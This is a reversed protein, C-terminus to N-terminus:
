AFLALIALAIVGGAIARLWARRRQRARFKIRLLQIPDPCTSM